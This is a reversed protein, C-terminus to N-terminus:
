AVGAADPARAAEELDLDLSVITTVADGWEQGVLLAPLLAVLAPMPSSAPTIRGWPSEVAGLVTTRREGAREALELAQAAEVIRQRWRARADGEGQMLPEFGLARYAPDEARADHTVGSARVVPGAATERLQDAGIRGVGATAWTFLGAREVLRALRRVQDASADRSLALQLARKGLPALGHLRLAAALRRLHHCARARELAALSAPQRLAARFVDGNGEASRRRPNAFPNPELHADQVVDGQLKVRLVLGPPFPPFFPGVRLPLQDLELGDRDPAHGALPRGYPVGGTMGKGGQGFPGVGRWPAPDRDPLVPADSPRVGTLLEHHNRIITPIVDDAREVIQMTPFMRALRGSAPGIPWWVTCRPGPMQDHVRAAPRLLGARPRGVTLLVTASRPTEVFRIRDDLRLSEAANRASEGAIVFVPVPAGSALRALWRRVGM